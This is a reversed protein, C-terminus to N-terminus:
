HYSRVKLFTLSLYKDSSTFFRCIFLKFLSVSSVVMRDNGLQFLSKVEKGGSHFFVISSLPSFFLM